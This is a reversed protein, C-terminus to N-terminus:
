VVRSLYLDSEVWLDSPQWSMILQLYDQCKECLIVCVRSYLLFFSLTVIVPLRCSSSTTAVFVTQKTSQQINLFGWLECCVILLGFRNHTQCHPSGSKTLTPRADSNLAFALSPAVVKYSDMQLNTLKCWLGWLPKLKIVIAKVKWCEDLVM